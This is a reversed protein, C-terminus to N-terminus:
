YRDEKDKDKKKQSDIKAQERKEKEAQQVSFANTNRELSESGGGGSSGGGGGSSSGTCVEDLEDEDDTMQSYQALIADRIKKEEATYERQVTTTLSQSELLRVLKEDVDESSCSASSEANSPHSKQWM